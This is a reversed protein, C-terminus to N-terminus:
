GFFYKKGVVRAAWRNQTIYIYSTRSAKVDTSPESTRRDVVTQITSFGQFDHYIFLWGWSTLKGSKQVM